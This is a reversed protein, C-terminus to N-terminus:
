EDDDANERTIQAQLLDSEAKLEEIRSFIRAKVGEQVIKQWEKADNVAEDAIKIRDKKTEAYDFKATLLDTKTTRLQEYSILGATLGQKALDYVKELVALRKQQLEKVKSSKGETENSVVPSCFVFGLGVLCSIFGVICALSKPTRRM